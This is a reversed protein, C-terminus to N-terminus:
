PEGKDAVALTTEIEATIDAVDSVQAVDASTAPSTGVPDGVISMGDAKREPRHSKASRAEPDGSQGGMPEGASANGAQDHRHNHSDEGPRGIVKQQPGNPSGLRCTIHAVSLQNASDAFDGKRNALAGSALDGHVSAALLQVEGSPGVFRALNRRQGAASRHDDDADFVSDGPDSWGIRGKFCSGPLAPYSDRSIETRTM